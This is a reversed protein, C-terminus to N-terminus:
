EVERGMRRNSVAEWCSRKPMRFGDQLDTLVLVETEISVGVQSWNPSEKFSLSGGDSVITRDHATVRRKTVGVWQNPFFNSVVSRWVLFRFCWAVGFFTRCSREVWRSGVGLGALSEGSV